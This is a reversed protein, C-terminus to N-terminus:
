VTVRKGVAETAMLAGLEAGGLSAPSMALTGSSAAAVNLQVIELPVIEPGAFLLTIVNEAPEDPVVESVTEAIFFPHVTM